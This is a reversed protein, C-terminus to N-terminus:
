GSGTGQAPIRFFMQKRISKIPFVCVPMPSASHASRYKLVASMQGSM